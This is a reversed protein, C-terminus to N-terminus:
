TSLVTITNVILTPFRTSRLGPDLKCRAAKAAGFDILTLKGTPADYLFNAFNPDTQMFRFEFLERM